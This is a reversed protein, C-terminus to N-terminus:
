RLFSCISLITQNQCDECQVLLVGDDLRHDDSRECSLYHGHRDEDAEDDALLGERWIADGRRRRPYEDRIPVGALLAENAGQCAKSISNRCASM